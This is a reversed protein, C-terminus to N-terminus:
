PLGLHALEQDALQILAGWVKTDSRGSRILELLPTFKSLFEERSTAYHPRNYFPELVYFLSSDLMYRSSTRLHLAATQLRFARVIGVIM